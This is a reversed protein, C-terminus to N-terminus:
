KSKIFNKLSGIAKQIDMEPNTGCYDSVARVQVAKVGYREAAKGFAAGEMSQILAGNAEYLAALEDTAPILSVTNATCVQLQIDEPTYFSAVDKIVPHLSTSLVAEDVFYDKSVMVLAGQKFPSGRYAGAIGLMLLTNASGSRELYRTISIATNTKGIGSIYIFCDRYYFGEVGYKEDPEYPGFVASAERATPIFITYKDIM